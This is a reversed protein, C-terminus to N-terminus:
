RISIMQGLLAVFAFFTVRYNFTWGWALSWSRGTVRSNEARAKSASVCIVPTFALDSPPCAPLMGEVLRSEPSLWVARLPKKLFSRLRRLWLRRRRRWERRFSFVNNPRTQLPPPPYTILHPLESSARNAEPYTTGYVIPHVTRRHFSFIPAYVWLPQPIGALLPLEM